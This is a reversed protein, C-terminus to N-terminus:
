KSQIEFVLTGELLGLDRYERAKTRGDATKYVVDKLGNAKVSVSILERADKPLHIKVPEFGWRSFIRTNLAPNGAGDMVWEIGGEFLGNDRNELTFCRGDKSQYTFNKITGNKGETFDVGLLRQFNDPLKIAIPKGTFRSLNRGFLFQSVRDEETTSWIIAGEFPNLDKYEKSKLLGDATKYTVDKTGDAKVSVSLLESFDEPLRINTAGGFRSTFARKTTWSGTERSGPKLWHILGQFADYDKIELTYYEGQTDIFTTNKITSGMLGGATFDVWLIREVTNPLKVVSEQGTFRSLKRGLFSSDTAFQSCGGLLVAVTLLAAILTNRRM